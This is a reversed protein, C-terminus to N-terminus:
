KKRGEKILKMMSEVFDDVLKTAESEDLRSISKAIEEDLEEKPKCGLEVAYIIDEKKLIYREVLKNSLMAIESMLEVGSGKVEMGNEDILIM